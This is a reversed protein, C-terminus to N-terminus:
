KLSIDMLVRMLEEIVKEIINHFRYISILLSPRRSGHIIGSPNM